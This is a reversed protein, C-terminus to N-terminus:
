LMVYGDRCARDITCTRQICTTERRALRHYYPVMSNTPIPHFPSNRHPLRPTYGRQPHAWIRYTFAVRRTTFPRGAPPTPPPPTGPHIASAYKSPYYSQPGWNFLAFGPLPQRFIRGCSSYM